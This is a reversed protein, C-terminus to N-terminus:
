ILVWSIMFGRTKVGFCVQILPHENNMGGFSATSLSSGCGFPKTQQLAHKVGWSPPQSSALRDACELALRPVPTVNAGLLLDCEGRFWVPDCEGRFWLIRLINSLRKPYFRPVFPVNLPSQPVKLHLHSEFINNVLPYYTGNQDINPQNSWKHTDKEGELM